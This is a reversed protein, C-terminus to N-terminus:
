FAWRWIEESTFEAQFFHFEIGEIGEVIAKIAEKYEDRVERLGVQVIMVMTINDADAIQRHCSDLVVSGGYRHVFKFTVALDVVPIGQAILHPIAERLKEDAEEHEPSIPISRALPLPTVVVKAALCVGAEAGYDYDVEQQNDHFAALAGAGLMAVVVVVSIVLWWKKM